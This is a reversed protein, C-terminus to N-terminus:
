RLFREPSLCSFKILRGAHLLAEVIAIKNHRGVDVTSGSSNEVDGPMKEYRLNNLITILAGMLPTRSMTDPADVNVKERQDLLALVSDLDGRFNCIKFINYIYFM